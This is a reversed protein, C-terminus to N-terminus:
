ARVEQRVSGDPNLHRVAAYVSDKHVDLGACHHHLTDM